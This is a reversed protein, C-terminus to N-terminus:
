RCSGVQGGKGGGMEGLGAAVVRAQEQTLPRVTGADLYLQIRRQVEEAGILDMCRPLGNVVQLCLRNPQDREDGDHLPVTRARWCGGTACCTLTGVTHIYQHGPYAEWHPSERGGAVVVCPRSPFRGSRVPVAAALHMLGTVPCLVGEAHHVLRVLQRLTTQGRLDLVGRLPPHHHHRTDGVQVFLLRGAFHDVVAQYRATDWWKITYDYKGGAVVIWFPLDQGLRRQVLSPLSRERPSLHLDGQPATLPCPVGLREALFSAFGNLCHVPRRNTEHILPYECDIVEVRRQRETLPTLHPNHEWLAPCATRVDTVFRGPNARHLDRVAATLMVVDGPSWDNRLILRRPALAPVPESSPM